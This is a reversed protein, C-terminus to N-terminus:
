LQHGPRAQTTGRAPGASLVLVAGVMQATIPVVDHAASSKRIRETKTPGGNPALPLLGVTTATVVKSKTGMGCTSQDILNYGLDNYGGGSCASGNSGINGVM